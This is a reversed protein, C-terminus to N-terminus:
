DVRLVPFSYEWVFHIAFDIQREDNELHVMKGALPCGSVAFGTNAYRKRIEKM